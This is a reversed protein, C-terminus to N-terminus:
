IGKAIDVGPYFLVNRGKELAYRCTYYTGGWPKGDWVALLIDCDDVMRRDRRTHCGGSYKEELFRVEAANDAIYEQVGTM